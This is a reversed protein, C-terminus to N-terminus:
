GRLGARAPEDDVDIGAAQRGIVPREIRPLAPSADDALGAMEDIQKTIQGTGGQNGGARDRAIGITLITTAELEAEGVAVLRRQIIAGVQRRVQRLFM